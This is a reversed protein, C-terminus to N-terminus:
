LFRKKAINIKVKRIRNIYCSSEKEGLLQGKGNAIGIVRTPSSISDVAVRGKGMIRTIMEHTELVNIIEGSLGARMDVRYISIGIKHTRAIIKKM